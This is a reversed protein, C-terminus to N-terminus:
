GCGPREREFWLFRGEPSHRYRGEYLPIRFPGPSEGRPRANVSEVTRTPQKQSPEGDRVRVLFRSTLLPCLFRLRCQGRDMTM